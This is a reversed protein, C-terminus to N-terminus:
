NLLPYLNRYSIIVTHGGKWMGVTLGKYRLGVIVSSKEFLPLLGEVVREKQEKSIAHRAQM